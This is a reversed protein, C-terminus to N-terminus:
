NLSTPNPDQIFGVNLDVEKPNHLAEIALYSEELSNMRLSM